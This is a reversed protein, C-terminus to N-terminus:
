SLITYVIRRGRHVDPHLLVNIFYYPLEERSKVRSLSAQIIFFDEVLRFL